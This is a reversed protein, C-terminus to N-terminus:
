NIPQKRLKSSDKCDCQGIDSCLCYMTKMHPSHVFILGFLILNAFYQSVALVMSDSHWSIDCISTHSSTAWAFILIFM